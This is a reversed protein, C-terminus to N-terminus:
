SVSLLQTDITYYDSSVSQGKASATMRCLSARNQLYAPTDDEVFLFARSRGVYRAFPVWQTEYDAEKLLSITAKWGVRVNYRNISTWGLGDEVASQDEMTREAGIDLGVNEFRKGIVLRQAEVYGAPNGTSTIDIRVFTESRSAAAMHLSLAGAAPAVGSWAAFSQDYTPASTTAAETAAARIRILDGSRTNCGILAVTDWGAAVQVTVYPTSLNSTRWVMGPADLDLNAASASAASNSNKVSLASPACFLTAM